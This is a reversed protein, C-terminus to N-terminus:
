LFLRETQVYLGVAAADLEQSDPSDSTFMSWLITQVSQRLEGRTQLPPHGFADLLERKNVEWFPISSARLTNLVTQNLIARRIENGNTMRELTASEIELNTIVWSLFGIASADAKDPQAPLIRKDHFDLKGGVFVAVAICRREVKIALLRDTQDHSGQARASALEVHFSRALDRAPHGHNMSRRYALLLTEDSHSNALEAYHEASKPEGLKQALRLVFLERVNAPRYSAQPRRVAMQDLITVM